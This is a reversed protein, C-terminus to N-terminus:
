PLLWFQGEHFLLKWLGKKTTQFVQQWVATCIYYTNWINLAAIRSEGHSEKLPDHNEERPVKTPSGRTHGAGGFGDVSTKYHIKM